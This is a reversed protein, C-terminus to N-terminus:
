TRAGTIERSLVEAMRGRDRPAGGAAIWTQAAPDSQDVVPVQGLTVVYRPRGPAQQTSSAM